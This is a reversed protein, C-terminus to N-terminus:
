VLAGCNCGPWPPVPAPRAAALQFGLADGHLFSDEWPQSVQYGGVASLDLGNFQALPDGFRICPM